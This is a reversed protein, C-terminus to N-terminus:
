NARPMNRLAKLISKSIEGSVFYDKDIENEFADVYALVDKTLIGMTNNNQFSEKFRDRICM